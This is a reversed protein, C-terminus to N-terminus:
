YFNLYGWFLYFKFNKESLRVSQVSLSSSPGPLGLSGFLGSQGSLMFPNFLVSLGFLNPSVLSGYSNPPGVVCPSPPGLLGFTDPLSSSGLTGLQGSSVVLDAPGLSGLYTLRARHDLRVLNAWRHCLRIPRAWCCMCTLRAWHGLYSMCARRGVRTPRGLPTLRALYALCTPGYPNDPQNSKNSDDPQDSRNSDDPRGLGNLNGQRGSGDRDDLWVLEIPYYPWGSWDPDDFSNEFKDHFWFMIFGLIFIIYNNIQDGLQKFKNMKTGSIKSPEIQYGYKTFPIL